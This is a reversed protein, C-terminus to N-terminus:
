SKVIRLHQKLTGLVAGFKGSARAPDVPIEKEGIVLAYFFGDRKAGAGDDAPEIAKIMQLIEDVSWHVQIEAEKVLPLLGGSQVLKIKMM